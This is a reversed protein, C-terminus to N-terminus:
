AAFWDHFQATTGFLSTEIQNLGLKKLKKAYEEFLFQDNTLLSTELGM